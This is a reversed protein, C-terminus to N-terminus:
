ELPFIVDPLTEGLRENGGGECRRASRRDVEFVTAANQLQFPYPYGGFMREYLSPALYGLEGRSPEYTQIFTVGSWHDQRLLPVYDAEIGKPVILARMLSFTRGDSISASMEAGLGLEGCKLSSSLGVTLTRSLQWNGIPYTGGDFCSQHMAPLDRIEERSSSISYVTVNRWYSYNSLPNYSSFVPGYIVKQYTTKTVPDRTPFRSEPFRIERFFGEQGPLEPAFREVVRAKSGLEHVQAHASGSGFGMLVLIVFGSASMMLNPKVGPCLSLLKMILYVWLLFPTGPVGRFAMLNM